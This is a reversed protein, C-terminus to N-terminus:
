KNQWVHIGNKGQRGYVNAEEPVFLCEHEPLYVCVNEKEQKTSVHICLRRKKSLGFPVCVYRNLETRDSLRTQSWTVGHVVARWAERDM